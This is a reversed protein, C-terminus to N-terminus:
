RKCTLQYSPTNDLFTLVANYKKRSVSRAEVSFIMGNRPNAGGYIHYSARSDTMVQIGLKGEVVRGDIDTYTGIVSPEATARNTILSVVYKERTTSECKHLVAIQTAWATSFVGSVLLGLCISFLKM